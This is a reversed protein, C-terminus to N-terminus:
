SALSGESEVEWSEVNEWGYKLAESTFDWHFYSLSKSYSIVVGTTQM